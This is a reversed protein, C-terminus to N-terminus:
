VENIVPDRMGYGADRLIYVDYIQAEPNRM